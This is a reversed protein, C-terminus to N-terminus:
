DLSIYVVSPDTNSIPTYSNQPQHTNYSPLFNNYIGNGSSEHHSNESAGTPYVEKPSESNTANNSNSEGFGFNQTWAKGARAAGFEKYDPNLINDKHGQSEMWGKMVQALSTQGLAVNEACVSYGEAECRQSPSTGGMGVHSCINKDSQFKSQKQAAKNLKENITYAALNQKKREANVADLLAKAEYDGSSDNTEKIETPAQTQEPNRSPAYGQTPSPSNDGPTLYNNEMSTYSPIHHNSESRVNGSPYETYSPLFNPYGGTPNYNAQQYQAENGMLPTPLYGHATELVALAITMFYAM